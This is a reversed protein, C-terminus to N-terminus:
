VGMRNRITKILPKLREIESCAFNVNDNVLDMDENLKEIGKLAKALKDTINVITTLLEENSKNKKSETKSM